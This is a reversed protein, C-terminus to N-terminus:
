PYLLAKHWRDGFRTFLMRDHLRDPGDIWFEISTPQLLYGCWFSPRPIEDPHEQAFAAVQKELQERSTLAHSQHSVAAGIQSRRSRTRFYHDCVDQPLGTITGAVRVQRRVSKWHFCLAAHPNEALERGKQSHANTYFSFGASDIGKVLVMRVSPLGSATATALAAATPDNPETTEALHLWTHFLPVPDDGELEPRTTMYAFIVMERTVASASDATIPYTVFVRYKAQRKFSRHNGGARVM